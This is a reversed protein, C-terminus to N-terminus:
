MDFHRNASGCHAFCSNRRSSFSLKSFLRKTKVFVDSKESVATEDRRFRRNERGLDGSVQSLQPVSLANNPLDQFGMAETAKKTSVPM